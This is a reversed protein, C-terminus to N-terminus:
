IKRYINIESELNWLNKLHIKMTKRRGDKRFNDVNHTGSIELDTFMNTTINQCARSKEPIRTGGFIFFLQSQSSLAREFTGFDYFHPTQPNEWLCISFNFNLNFCFLIVSSKLM